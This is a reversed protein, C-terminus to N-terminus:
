AEGEGRRVELGREDSSPGESRGMRNLHEQTNEIWLKTDDHQIKEM